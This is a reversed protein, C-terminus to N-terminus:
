KFLEAVKLQDYYGIGSVQEPYALTKPQIPSKSRRTSEQHRDVGSV